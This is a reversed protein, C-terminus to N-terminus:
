EMNMIEEKTLDKTSHHKHNVIQNVTIYHINTQKAVERQNLDTNFYLRYAGLCEKNSYKGVNNKIEKPINDERCFSPMNKTSWHNHNLIELVTTYTMPFHKAVESKSCRNDKWYKYVELCEHKTYLSGGSNYGGHNSGNKLRCFEPMNRTSWHKHNVINEVLRRGVNFEKALKKQIIEETYYKNYIELCEKKTLSSMSSEEGINKPKYELRCFSPMNETSWHEHNVMNRLVSISFISEKSFELYSKGSKILKKYEELYEKRTHNVNSSNEGSIKGSIRDLTEKDHSKGYFPNNKGRLAKHSLILNYGKNSYTGYIEEIYYMEWDDLTEIPINEDVVSFKFAEEGYKNYSKQLHSNPHYNGRLTSLHDAKRKRFNTTQGIYKKENELNTICYILGTEM